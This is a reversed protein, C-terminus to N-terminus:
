SDCTGTTWANYKDNFIVQINLDLIRIHSIQGENAM